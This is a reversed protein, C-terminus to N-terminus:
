FIFNFYLCLGYETYFRVFFLFFRFFRYNPSKIKLVNKVGWFGVNKRLLNEARHNVHAIKLESRSGTSAKNSGRAVGVVRGGSAPPTTWTRGAVFFSILTFNIRQGPDSLRLRWPCGRGGQGTVLTVSSALYGRSTVHVTLPLYDRRCAHNSPKWNVATMLCIETKFQRANQQFFSSFPKSVLIVFIM